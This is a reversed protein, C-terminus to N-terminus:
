YSRIKQLVIPLIEKLDQAILSDVDKGSDTWEEALCGHVFGAVVGASFTDLSRAMLAGIFGTLVDGTGAKALASHGKPIIWCKNEWALVSYFGKLLVLCGMEQSARIAYSCRDKDIEQGKTNFFRALEGSHPTVVWYEPLPFLKEKICVTFADADVVVPLKTKKLEELIIKTKKDVGFGPGVAVATKNKLLEPDSLTQTLLEPVNKNLFPDQPKNSQEVSNAEKVAWTVYGVGMRYASLASLQGAGWFGESGALVLLHGQSAKHDTSLRRPLQSSVWKTDVLFHTYDLVSRPTGISLVKLHGACDPGQMLYFGPKAFFFSLTLNAKVAVGQIQGTDINLGSPTDVSVVLNNKCNIKQILQAYFGEINKNLGVGFLADVIIDQDAIEGLDEMSHLLVGLHCLREKQKKLLVSDGSSSCFVKVTIGQSLLHRAIVLGDGGNNGPGCLILISSHQKKNEKIYSCIERASLAGASEMLLEDSLGYRQQALQDTEFSQMSTILPIFETSLHPKKRDSM